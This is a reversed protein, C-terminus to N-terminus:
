ARRTEGGIHLSADTGGKVYAVFHDLIASSGQAAVGMKRNLQPARCKSSSPLRGREVAVTRESVRSCLLATRTLFANWRSLDFRDPEGLVGPFFVVGVAKEFPGFFPFMTRPEGTPLPGLSSNFGPLNLEAGMQMSLSRDYGGDLMASFDFTSEFFPVDATSQSHNGQYDIDPASANRHVSAGLAVWPIVTGVGGPLAAANEVQSM